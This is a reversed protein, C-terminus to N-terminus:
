KAISPTLQLTVSQAPQAQFVAGSPSAVATAVAVAPRALTSALSTAAGLPKATTDVDIAKVASQLNYNIAAQANASSGM